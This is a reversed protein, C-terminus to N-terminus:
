TITQYLNSATYEDGNLETVDLFKTNTGSSRISRLSHSDRQHIRGNIRRVHRFLHREAQRRRDVSNKLWRMMATVSSEGLAKPHRSGTDERFGTAERLRFGTAERFGSSENFADTGEKTANYIYRCKSAACM